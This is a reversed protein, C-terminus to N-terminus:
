KLGSAYFFNVSIASRKQQFTHFFTAYFFSLLFLKLQHSLLIIIHSNHLVSIFMQKVNSVFVITIIQVCVSFAHVSFNLSSCSTVFRICEVFILFLFCVIDFQALYLNFVLFGFLSWFWLVSLLISLNPIFHYCLFLKFIIATINYSHLVPPPSRYLPSQPSSLRHM